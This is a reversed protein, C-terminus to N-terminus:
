EYKVPIKIKSFFNNIYDEWKLDLEKNLSFEKQSTATTFHLSDNEYNMNLFVAAANPHISKVLDTGGAFVIKISEPKTKGKIFGFVYPKLESWTAFYRKNNEQASSITEKSLMGSIEFRVFSSVVVNRIEFDDFSTGRLLNNMFIKIDPEELYFALM